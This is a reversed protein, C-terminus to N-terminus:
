SCNSGSSENPFELEIKDGQTLFKPRVEKIDKKDVKKITSGCKQSIEKIDPKQLKEKNWM